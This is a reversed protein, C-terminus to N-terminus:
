FDAGGGVGIFQNLAEKLVYAVHVRLVTILIM